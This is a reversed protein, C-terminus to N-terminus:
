CRHGPGAMVCADLEVVGDENPYGGYGVSGDEPDLEVVNAGKEVADLMNKKKLWLQWAPQLVKEGWGEGRSCVIIPRYNTATQAVARRVAPAALASLAGVKFFERRSWWSKM